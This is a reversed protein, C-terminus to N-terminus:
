CNVNLFILILWAVYENKTMLVNKEKLWTYIPFWINLLIMNQSLQIVKSALIMWSCNDSFDNQVILFSTKPILFLQSVTNVVSGLKTDKFGEGMGVGRRIYPFIMKKGPVYDNKM